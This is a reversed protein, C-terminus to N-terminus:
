RPPFEFEFTAQGVAVDLIGNKFNPVDWYLSGEITQGPAITTAGLSSSRINFATQQSKDTVDAAKQLARAQAAYDPVQTMMTTMNGNRSIYPMAGGYCYIPQYGWFGGNGIMTSTM